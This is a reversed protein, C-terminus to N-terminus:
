NGLWREKLSRFTGTKINERINRVLDTMFYINHITALKGYVNKSENDNNVKKYISRLEAKSYNKCTYCSCLIDIPNNDNEYIKKAIDIRFKNRINGGSKPSIYLNGHRAIRTMEVCDFTDIGQEICNFLDDVWGIGLMHRPRDDLLPIVWSLIIGM